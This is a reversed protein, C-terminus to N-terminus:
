NEPSMVDLLVIVICSLVARDLLTITRFYRICPIGLVNAGKKWPENDTVGQIAVSVPMLAKAIM